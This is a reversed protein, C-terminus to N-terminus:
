FYFLRFLIIPFLLTLVVSGLVCIFFNLNEKDMGNKVDM